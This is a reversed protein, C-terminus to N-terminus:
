RPRGAAGAASEVARLGARMAVAHNLHFVPRALPMWRRLAPKRVTVHETFHAVCSPHEGGSRPTGSAHPAAPTVRWRVSGAIDGDLAAELVGAAPDEVVPTLRFTLEYPLFSRIVVECEREATQRVSRFSPWWTPYSGIDALKAYLAEAPLPARWRGTFLLDHRTTM